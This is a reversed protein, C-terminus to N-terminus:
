TADIAAEVWKANIFSNAQSAYPDRGYEQAWVVEDFMPDEKIRREWEDDKRPDDKYDFVFLQKSGKLQQNKRFFRNGPGNFTPIDIQVNTNASLAADVEDQHEIFAYEDVLYMSCNHTVIYDDTVYLQNEAAVSICQTEQEGVPEIKVLSRRPKYKSRHKFVEVYRPLRFPVMGHPM